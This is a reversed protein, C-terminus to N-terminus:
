FLPPIVSLPENQSNRVPIVRPPPTSLAPTSQKTRQRSNLASEELENRQKIKNLSRFLSRAEKDDFTREMDTMASARAAITKFQANPHLAIATLLVTRDEESLQSAGLQENAPANKKEEPADEDTLATRLEHLPDLNDCAHPSGDQHILEGTAKLPTHELCVPCTVSLLPLSAEASHACSSLRLKLDIADLAILLWNEPPSASVKIHNLFARVSTLYDLDTPDKLAGLKEFVVATIRDANLSNFLANGFPVCTEHRESDVYVDGDRPNILTKKGCAPCVGTVAVPKDGISGLMQIEEPLVGGHYDILKKLANDRARVVDGVFDGLWELFQNYTAIKLSEYKTRPGIGSMLEGLESEAVKKVLLLHRILRAYSCAAKRSCEKISISTDPNSLANRVSSGEGLITATLERFPIMTGLTTSAPWDNILPMLLALKPFYCLLSNPGKTLHKEVEGSDLDVRFETANYADLFSSLKFNEALKM